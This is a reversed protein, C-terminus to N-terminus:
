RTYAGEGWKGYCMDANVAFTLQRSVAVVSARATATLRRILHLAVVLNTSRYQDFRWVHAEYNDSLGQWILGETGEVYEQVEKASGDFFEDCAEAYPNFIVILRRTATKGDAKTLTYRGVPAACDFQLKGNSLFNTTKDVKKPIGPADADLFLKAGAGAGALVFAPGGRRVVLAGGLSTSSTPVECWSALNDSTKKTKKSVRNKAVLCVPGPVALAPDTGAAQHSETAPQQSHDNRYRATNHKAM